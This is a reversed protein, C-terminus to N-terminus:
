KNKGERDNRSQLNSGKGRGDGEQGKNTEISEFRKRKEEEERQQNAKQKEKRTRLIREDVPIERPPDLDPIPIPQPITVINIDELKELETHTEEQNFKKATNFLKKVSLHSRNSKSTMFSAVSETRGVSETEDIIESKDIKDVIKIPCIKNTWRDLKSRIPEDYSEYEFKYKIRNDVDCNLTSICTLEQCDWLFSEAAFLPIQTLIYKEYILDETNNLLIELKM